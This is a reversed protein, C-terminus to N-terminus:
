ISERCPEPKRAEKTPTLTPRQKSFIKCDTASIGMKKLIENYLLLLLACTIMDLM